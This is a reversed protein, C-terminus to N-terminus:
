RDANGAIIRSNYKSSLIRNQLELQAVLFAVRMHVISNIFIVYYFLIQIELIKM